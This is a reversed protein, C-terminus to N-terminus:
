LQSIDSRAQTTAVQVPLPTIPIMAVAVLVNLKFALEYRTTQSQPMNFATAQHQQYRRDWCRLTTNNLGHQKAFTQSSMGSKLYTRVARVQSAKTYRPKSM